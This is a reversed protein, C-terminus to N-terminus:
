FGLSLNSERSHTVIIHSHFELITTLILILQIQAFTLNDLDYELMVITPPLSLIQVRAIGPLDVNKKFKNKCFEM